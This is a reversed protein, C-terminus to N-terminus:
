RKDDGTHFSKPASSANARMQHWENEIRDVVHQPITSRTTDSPQKVEANM